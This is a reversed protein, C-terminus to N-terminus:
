LGFLFATTVYLYVDGLFRTLSEIAKYEMSTCLHSHYNKHHSHYNQHCTWSTLHPYMKCSLALLWLVVM